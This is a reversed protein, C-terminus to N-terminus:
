LKEQWKRNEMKNIKDEIKKKIKPLLKKWDEKLLGYMNIDKIKGTARSRVALKRIGEFKYGMGLQTKSSATNDTFVSSNLRRLKLKNFAFNNAAIKAESIYGKMQYKRNIWSGTEAVGQFKNISGLGICGIVKREKKLEIFFQYAKGQDWKKISKNIFSLADKKTYPYPINQVHKSVDLNGVGEVVDKWDSVRPKRLILRRTEISKMGINKTLKSKIVKRMREKLYKSEYISKGDRFGIFTGKM